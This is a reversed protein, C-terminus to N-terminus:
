VLDKIKNLLKQYEKDEGYIKKYLEITLIDFAHLFLDSGKHHNGKAHYLEHIMLMRKGAWSLKNWVNWRIRVTHENRYYAGSAGGQKSEIKPMPKDGKLHPYVESAIIRMEMEAEENRIM